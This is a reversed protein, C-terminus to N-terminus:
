LRKWSGKGLISNLLGSLRSKHINFKKRNFFILLSMKTISELIDPIIKILAYIFGYHKKYFYFKSWMIHWHRLPQINKLLIKNYSKGEKHLVKIEKLIYIKENLKNARLCYDTEEYYMFIKEDFLGVKYISRMNFFLFHGHVINMRKLNSNPKNFKHFFDKPYDSRNHEPALIIFDDIKNAYKYFTEIISPDFDTDIDLYLGYKTTINKLGINYGGTQGNNIKSLIVIVNKYIKEFYKKTRLANSNEVIIIKIKSNIKRIINEISSNDAYYSVMFITLDKNINSM